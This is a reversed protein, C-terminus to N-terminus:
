AQVGGLIRQLVEIAKPSTEIGHGINPLVTVSRLQKFHKEALAVTGATPFLPDKDGLVLYVDQTVAEFEDPRLPTPLDGAFRFGTLALQMYDMMLEYVQPSVTHDPPHLIAKDFFAGITRRNPLLMPLLNYFLNYLKSSFPQIGGPNMMVLREVRGPAQLALKIGILCGQSAGIVTAQALDLGAFVEDAWVGYDNSKIDPCQGASLGPQGVVDPIFIRYDAKLPALVHGLDWFLGCTRAGPLFVLTPLEARDRQHAWVRTPGFRTEITLSEYPLGNLEQVRANWRELRALGAAPDKFTSVRLPRSTATSAAM